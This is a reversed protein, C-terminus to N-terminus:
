DSRKTEAASKSGIHVREKLVENIRGQNVGFLAAIQHQFEGRWYRLWVEIADKFTLRYTM